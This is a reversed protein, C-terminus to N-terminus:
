GVPSKFGAASLFRARGGLLEGRSEVSFVAVGSCVGLEGTRRIGNSDGALEVGDIGSCIAKGGKLGLGTIESSDTWGGARELGVSAPFFDFFFLRPM